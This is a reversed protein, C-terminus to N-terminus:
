KDKNLVLLSFGVLSASLSGILAVEILSAVFEEKLFNGNTLLVYNILWMSKDSISLQTLLNATRQWQMERHM